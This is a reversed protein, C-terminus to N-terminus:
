ERLFSQCMLVDTKTLQGRINAKVGGHPSLLITTPTAALGLREAEEPTVRIVQVDPSIGNKDFYDKTATNTIDIWTVKRTPTSSLISRWNQFNLKCFPCVPSFILLLANDDRNSFNYEIPNGALSIGKIANITKVDLRHASSSLNRETSALALANDHLRLKRMNWGAIVAGIVLIMPFVYRACNSILLRKSM